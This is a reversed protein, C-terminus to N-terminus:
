CSYLFYLLLQLADQLTVMVLLAKQGLALAPHLQLPKQKGWLGALKTGLVLFYMIGPENQHLLDYCTGWAGGLFQTVIM